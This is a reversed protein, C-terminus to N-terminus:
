HFVLVHGGAGHLERDVDVAFHSRIMALIGSYRAPQALSVIIRGDPTLSRSLRRLLSKRSWWRLYYFSNSFLIVDYGRTCQYAAMDGLGFCIRENAHKNAAAIAERSLDIGLLSQFRAPNLAGAIPAAGCGLVLIHGNRCYKEVLEVLDPSESSFNWDGSTFKRDFSLSRLKRGGFRTALYHVGRLSLLRCLFETM